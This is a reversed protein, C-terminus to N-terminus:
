GAARSPQLSGVGHGLGIRSIPQDQGEIAQFRRLSQSQNVGQRSQVPDLHTEFEEDSGTWPNHVLQPLPSQLNKQIELKVVDGGGHGSGAAAGRPQPRPQDRDM